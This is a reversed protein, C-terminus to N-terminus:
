NMILDYGTLINIGTKPYNTATIHIGLSTLAHKIM